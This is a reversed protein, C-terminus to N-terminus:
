IILDLLRISNQEMFKGQETYKVLDKYNDKTIGGGPLIIIRDGAYDILEKLTDM